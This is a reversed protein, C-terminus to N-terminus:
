MGDNDVIIVTTEDPNGVMVRGTLSSERISLKFQENDELINDDNIGINLSATTQGASIMISFTGSDYDVGGGIVNYMVYVIVTTRIYAIISM